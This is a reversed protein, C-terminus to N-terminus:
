LTRPLVIAARTGGGERAQLTLGARDHYLTELRGAVNTLGVGPRGHGPGVGDDEVSLRLLDGDPLASIRLHVPGPKPALGHKLANEVLPQLILSPIPCAAIEPSMEIEVKLRDGFRSEEISLYARLFDIEERVSTSPRPAHALLHRFVGALRVTMTEARAPDRVILDAITNLSNFLFHPNIQARLAALEAESVQQRLVAERSEREVAERQRRLAELRQGCQSAIAALLSLDRTLLGPRSASPAILLIHTVRGAESIPVLLEVGKLPIGAALPDSPSIEVTEGDLLAAPWTTSNAAPVTQASALDLAARAAGATATLIESDVSLGRVQNALRRAVDRYDPTHFLARNIATALREDVFTLSVMILSSLVLVLLMHTSAPSLSRRALHLVAWSQALATVIGVWIGIFLIRVGYRIFVDAYRFRAFLLYACVFMLLALHVAIIALWEAIEMQGHHHHVAISMTVVAGAGAAVIALSLGFVGRPATARRLSVAAAVLMLLAAIMASGHMLGADPVTFWLFTVFLAALIWALAYLVAMARRQWLRAALNRWVWLIPIPLAVLGSFQLEQARQAWRGLGPSQSALVAAYALGGANWFLACLAFVINARSAGPLKAARITLVLLLLTILLGTSYGILDGANTATLPM